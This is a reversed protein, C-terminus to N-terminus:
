FLFDSLQANVTITDIIKKFSHDDSNLVTVTYLYKEQDVLNFNFITDIVYLPISRSVNHFDYDLTIMEGDRTEFLRTFSMDYAYINSPHNKRDYIFKIDRRVPKYALNYERRFGVDIHQYDGGCLESGKLEIINGGTFAAYFSGDSAIETESRPSIRSFGKNLIRIMGSACDETFQVTGFVETLGEKDSSEKTCGFLTSILVLFILNSKFYTKM